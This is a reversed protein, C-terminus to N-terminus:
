KTTMPIYPMGNKRVKQFERRSMSISKEECLTRPPHGFFQSKEAAMSINKKM